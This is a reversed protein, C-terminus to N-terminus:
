SVGECLNVASLALEAAYLGELLDTAGERAFTAKLDTVQGPTLRIPGHQLNWHVAGDRAEFEPAPIVPSEVLRVFCGERLPIVNSGDAPM